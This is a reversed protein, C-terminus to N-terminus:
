IALPLPNELAIGDREVGCAYAYAEVGAARARAFAAAYGPDLDGALAFAQCDARQVVYLMVARAGQRAMAALEDLHKAGRATVCDPFEALGPRRCLHVNKVEVFTPARGPAELLLDIRSRAGYPVERRVGPYGRLEAIRGAALAEAVLHNPLGTNIGVLTGDAAVIELTWPLKRSPRDSASLFVPSGPSDLGLMGGPNPCHATVPDARGDLAVDALFRKYRKLLRGALLPTPFRM